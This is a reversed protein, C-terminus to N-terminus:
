QGKFRYANPTIGEHAKFRRIFSSVNYYGVRESIERLPLATTKLLKRAQGMRLDILYDLMNCQMQEKFFSSLNSPLMSFQEAVEQMSFDCRCYNEEIYGVIDQILQDSASSQVQTCKNLEDRIGRIIGFLASVSELENLQSLAKSLSYANVVASSTDSLCGKIIDACVSRALFLPMNQDSIYQLLNDIRERIQVPDGLAAANTLQRLLQHPYPCITDLNPSVDDYSIVIGSGKIFRYDLANVAQFMSKAILTTELHVRGVGVTASVSFKDNLIGLASYLPEFNAALRSNPVNHLFVLQRRNVTSIYQSEITKCIERSLSEAISERPVDVEGPLLFVSVYFYPYTFSIGIQECDMNFEELSVYSGSLLQQLRAMRITPINAEKETNLKSNEEQLYTLTHSIVRLDDMSGGPADGPGITMLAKKTLRNVPMYNLRVLLFIVLIGIGCTLLLFFAFFSGVDFLASYIENDMPLLSIARLGTQPSDQRIVLYERGNLSITDGNPTSALSSGILLDVEGQEMGTSFLFRGDDYFILTGVNINESHINFYDSFVSAPLCIVARDSYATGIPFVLSVYEGTEGRLSLQNSRLVTMSSCQLLYAEMDAVSSDCYYQDFFVSARCMASKVGASIVTDAEHFYVFFCAITSDLNYIYTADGIILLSSIQGDRNTTFASNENYMQYGENRVLFSVREQYSQIASDLLRMSASLEDRVITKVEEAVSKAVTQTYIVYLVCCPVLLVALM